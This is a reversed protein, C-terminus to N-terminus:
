SAGAARLFAFLAAMVVVIVATAVALRDAFLRRM